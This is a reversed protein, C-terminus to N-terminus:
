AKPTSARAELWANLGRRMSSHLPEEVWKFFLCSSAVVVMAYCLVWLLSGAAPEYSAIRKLAVLMSIQIPAHLVYMAYSANGLLAMAKGSLLSAIWGGDLALGLIVCAYAPLLLGNHVLPYPIERAYALVVGSVAMGPLYLWYGRGFWGSQPQLCRYLRALLIGAWFEPARVLPNYRILNTWIGGAPGLDTVTASVDGFGPVPALVMMVPGVLSLLWLVAVALLIIGPRRMRWLLVGVAPFSVYFFAEDSLSWGPYNWTLATQPLWAQLLAAQLPLFQFRLNDDGVGRLLRYVAFPVLLLLGFFYAPYIRSFRAVGFRTWDLSSWRPGLDYNYALVFGSLLFFVTVAAYGTRLINEAASGAHAPWAIGPGTEHPIEHYLIVWLALFFRIGTLPSLQRRGSKM